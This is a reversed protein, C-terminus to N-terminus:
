PSADSASPGGRIRMGDRRRHVTLYSLGQAGAALSRTSGRPLWALVGEALALAGDPGTLAGDGGLVVLLVDVDRETHTEVRRGAPLHVVNADLQRGEEALRWLAGASGAARGGILAGIEGVLLPAPQASGSGDVPDSGANGEARTTGMIEGMM